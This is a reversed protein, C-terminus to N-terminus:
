EDRKLPYVKIEILGPIMDLRRITALLRRLADSAEHHQTDLRSSEDEATFMLAEQAVLNREVKM